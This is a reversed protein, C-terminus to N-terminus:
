VRFKTSTATTMSLLRSGIALAAEVIQHALGIEDDLRGVLRVHTEGAFRIAVEALVASVSGIQVEPVAEGVRQSFRGALRQEKFAVIERM